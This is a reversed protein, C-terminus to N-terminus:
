IVYKNIIAAKKTSLLEWFRIM